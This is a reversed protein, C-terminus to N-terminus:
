SWLDTIEVSLQRLLQRFLPLSCGLVAGPDGEVGDIFPAAIGLITFGGAVQEPEGTAVYAAIEADTPNGFRVATAAVGEAADGSTTDIVCHGTVLTATRSRLRHWLEEADAPSAPKGFPSGDLDLLSDCGLVLAGDADVSAASAKRRALVRVIDAAATLGTDDEPVDAVVVDPDFGANRLLQLRAVSASALILPRSPM